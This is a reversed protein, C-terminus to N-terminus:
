TVQHVEPLCELIETACVISSCFLALWFLVSIPKTPKTQSLQDFILIEMGTFIEPNQCSKMRKWFFIAKFYGVTLGPVGFSKSLAM